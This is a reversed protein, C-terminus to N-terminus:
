LQTFIEPGNETIGITHEFQASLRYDKTIVTWGDKLLRTEHTGANIMPEVTFFMGPRIEESTGAFGTHEIQPPAHFTTGIGHGCYDEVISYQNNYKNKM